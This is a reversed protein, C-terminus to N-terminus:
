TRSRCCAPDLQNRRRDPGSPGVGWREVVGADCDVAIPGGADVVSATWRGAPAPSTQGPRGPGAARAGPRARPGGREVRPGVAVGGNRERSGPYVGFAPGASCRASAPSARRCPRGEVRGDDAGRGSVRRDRPSVAARGPRLPRQVPTAPQGASCSRRWTCRRAPWRCPGIKAARAPRARRRLGDLRHPRGGRAHRKAGQHRPSGARGPARGGPRPVLDIGVVAAERAGLPGRSALEEKLTRGRLLEMWMGVVGDVIDAGFVTVINPHRLKALLRGEDVVASATDPSGARAAILKLAVERDLRPDRARYVTGFTGHGLEELLRFSGWGRALCAIAFRGDHTRRRSGAIRHSRTVPAPRRAHGAGAARRAGAPRGSRSVKVDIAAWDIPRGDAIAEALALIRANGDPPSSM